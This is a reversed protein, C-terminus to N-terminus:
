LPQGTLSIDRVQFPMVNRKLQEFVNLVIRGTQPLKGKISFYLTTSTGTSEHGSQTAQLRTGDQAYFEASNLYVSPQNLRLSLMTDNDQWPNPEISRIVAGLQPAQAGVKFDITGSDVQKSPGATLYELTGSLEELGGVDRDPLLLEVDFVATKKDKSLRAFGIKRQWPHVPLLSKGTDTTARDVTGGSVEIAPAPLEAILALTYGQNQGLPMIGSEFDSYQVLRVGGVRVSSPGTALEPAAPTIDTFSVPPPPTPTTPTTTKPEPETLALQKLMVDYNAKAAAVAAGYDFRPTTSAAVLRIPAREGFLKENMALDEEGAGSLPDKGKRIQEKLWAEDQMMEDMVQLIKAGEIVLRATTDNVKQFNSIQQIPGPLHLIIETKLGSLIGQMMLRTQSYQQKAQKVLNDVQDEPIQPVTPKPGEPQQGKLEIIIQGSPDKTFNLGTDSEFGAGKFGLTNINPFYATGKFYMRGDNTMRYSIDEWTDIGQSQQLIQKVAQKLQAQPDSPKTTPTQGLINGMMDGMPQFTAVHVVKGSGDPNITFEDKTEVCGALLVAGIALLLWGRKGM